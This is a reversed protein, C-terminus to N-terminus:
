EAPCVPFRDNLPDQEDISLRGRSQLAAYELWWQQVPGVTWERSIRSLLLGTSKEPRFAVIWVQASCAPGDECPCGSVVGGINVIAGPALDAAVSRIKQVEKDTINAARLPGERRRPQTERIRQEVRLQADMAAIREARMKEEPPRTTVCAVVWLDYDPTGRITPTSKYDLRSRQMAQLSDGAGSHSVSRNRCDYSNQFYHVSGPGVRRVMLRPKSPDDERQLLFYKATPDSPVALPAEDAAAPMGVLVVVSAILEVSSRRIM